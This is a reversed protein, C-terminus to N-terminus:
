LDLTREMLKQRCTFIVTHGMNQPMLLIHKEQRGALFRM